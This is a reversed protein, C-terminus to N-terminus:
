LRSTPRIQRTASASSYPMTPMLVPKMEVSTAGNPPIFSDPIPRSPEFYPISSHSSSFYRAIPPTSLHDDLLAVIVDVGALEDLDHTEVLFFTDGELLLEKAAQDTDERRVDARQRRVGAEPSVLVERLPLLPPRPQLSVVPPAVEECADLRQDVRLLVPDEHRRRERRDSSRSPRPCPRLRGRPPAPFRSRSRWPGRRRPLGSRRRRSSGRRLPPPPTRRRRQYRPRRQPRLEPRASPEPPSRGTRASRCGRSCRRGRRRARSAAM